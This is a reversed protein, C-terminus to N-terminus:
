ARARRRRVACAGGVALLAATSPVPVPRGIMQVAGLYFFGNTNDNNPGPSVSLSIMGSGDAMLGSLVLVNSDNNSADLVGSENNGGVLDYQADRIDMVGMRSGFITFTYTSNADLNRFEIVGLPNADAGAFPTTHGFYYDVTAAAEFLSAAGSPTGTGLSSPEGSDFFPDVIETAIGTLNGNQDISNGITTVGPVFNNFRMADSQTDTRGFDFYLVQASATGSALALGVSVFVDSYRM